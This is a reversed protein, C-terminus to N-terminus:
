GAEGGEFAFETADLFGDLEEGGGFAGGAEGVELFQIGAFGLEVAVEGDSFPAEFFEGEAGPGVLFAEGTGFLFEALGDEITGFGTEADGGVEEVGVEFGEDLGGDLGVGGPFFAAVGDGIAFEGGAFGGDIGADGTVAFAEGQDIGAVGGAVEEVGFVLGVEGEVVIGVGGPVGAEVEEFGDFEGGGAGEGGVAPEIPFAAELFADEIPEVFFDLGGVGGDALEAGVEVLADTAVDIADDLFAVGGEGGEPGEEVGAEGGGVGEGLGDLGVFDVAGFGFEHGGDFGGIAGIVATAAEQIVAEVMTVVEFHDQGILGLGGADGKAAAAAAEAAAFVLCGEEDGHEGGEAADVVGAGLAGGVEAEDDHVFGEGFEGAVADLVAEFQGAAEVELEDHGEGDIAEADHGGVGLGDDDAFLFDGGAGVAKDGVDFVDGDEEGGLM